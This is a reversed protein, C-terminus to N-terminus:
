VVHLSMQHGMLLTSVNLNSCCLSQQLSHLGSSGLDSRVGGMSDSDIGGPVHLALKTVFPETLLCGEAFVHLDVRDVTWVDTRDTAPPEFLHVVHLTMEQGVGSGLGVGTVETILAVSIVVAELLVHGLDMRVNGTVKRM